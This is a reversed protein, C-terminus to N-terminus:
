PSQTSHNPNSPSRIAGLLSDDRHHSDHDRRKNGVERWFRRSAAALAVVLVPGHEFWVTVEDFWRSGSLGLWATEPFRYILWLRLYYLTAL